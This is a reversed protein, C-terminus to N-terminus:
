GGKGFPGGGLAVWNIGVNNGHNAGMSDGVHGHYPMAEWVPHGHSGCPNGMAGLAIRTVGMPGWPISMPNLCSRVSECVDSIHSCETVGYANADNIFVATGAQAGPGVM